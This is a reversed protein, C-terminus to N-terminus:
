EFIYYFYKTWCRVQVIMYKNCLCDRLEDFFFLLYSSFHSTKFPHSMVEYPRKKQKKERRNADTVVHLFKMGVDRGSRGGLSNNTACLM